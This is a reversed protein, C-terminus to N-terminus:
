PTVAGLYLQMLDALVTPIGTEACGPKFPSGAVGHSFRQYAPDEIIYGASGGAQTVIITKTFSGDRQVRQGISTALEGGVTTLAIDNIMLLGLHLEVPATDKKEYDTAGNKGTAKQGPCTLNNTAGWIKATSATKSITDAVRIVEEGIRRSQANLLAWGGGEDIPPQGAPQSDLARYQLSQDGAAGMTWLAVVKNKYHSEVYSSTAGPLDGSVECGEKRTKFRFMIEGGVAYNMVIAIPEGILSEFRIVAVTKDSLNASDVIRASVGPYSNIYARGTGYGMRAPQLHEKALRVAEVAGSEIKDYYAAWKATSEGGIPSTLPESHTHVAALVIREPAIGSIAAIKRTLEEPRPVKVLDFSIIAAASSGNDMVIARARLRDHVAVLSPAPSGPGPGHQEYPLTSDPPTIDAKAAGVRLAGTEAGYALSASVFGITWTWHALIGRRMRM